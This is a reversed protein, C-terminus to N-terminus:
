KSEAIKTGCYGCFKHFYTLEYGCHVCSGVKFAILTVGDRICFIENSTYFSNCTPCLRTNLSTRINM